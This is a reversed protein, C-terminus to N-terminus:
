MQRWIQICISPCGTQNFHESHPWVGIEDQMEVVMDHLFRLLALSPHEQAIRAAM